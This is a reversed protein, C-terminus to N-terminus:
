YDRIRVLFSGNLLNQKNYILSQGSVPEIVELGVAECIAQGAATDWEMTPSFRPYMEAKGEALLCFKLSSGVSLIDVSNGKKIESIFDKTETNLHSRSVLIRIASSNQSTSSFPTIESANEFISDISTIDESLVIKFAKSADKDTYYLTKQVPLYIVGLKPKGDDVLAINVTFQDNKQVFEKTGDLPDVIWCNRWNKRIEFPTQKSEESIIPTGTLILYNNIIENAKLDAATVPSKDEKKEIHFDTRYIELIVKGAEIAAKIALSLNDRM